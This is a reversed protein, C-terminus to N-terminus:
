SPSSRRGQEFLGRGAGSISRTRRRAGSIPRDSGFTPQSSRGAGHISRCQCGAGSTSRSHGSISLSRRGAGSIMPYNAGRHQQALKGQVPAAPLKQPLHRKKQREKEKGGCRVVEDRGADRGSKLRFCFRKSSEFTGGRGNSRRTREGRARERWRRHMGKEWGGPRARERALFLVGGCSSFRRAATNRGTVTERRREGTGEDREEALVFGEWM